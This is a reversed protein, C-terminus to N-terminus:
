PLFQLTQKARGMNKPVTVSGMSPLSPEGLANFAESRDARLEVTEPSTIKWDPSNGILLGVDRTWVGVIRWTAPGCSDTALASVQVEVMRHDPPWLTTRSVTLDALNAPMPFVIVTGSWSATAGGASASFQVLNTGLPLSLPSFLMGLPFSIFPPIEAFTNTQTPTGNVALVVTVPLGHPANVVASVTFPLDCVVGSPAEGSVTLPTDDNIISGDALASGALLFMAAFTNLIMYSGAKAPKPLEVRFPQLV